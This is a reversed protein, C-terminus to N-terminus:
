KDAKLISKYLTNSRVINNNCLAVRDGLLGTISRIALSSNYLSNSEIIFGNCNGYLVIGDGSNSNITNGKIINTCVSAGISIVDDVSLVTDNYKLIQILTGSSPM